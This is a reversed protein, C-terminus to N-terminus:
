PKTVTIRDVQTPDRDWHLRNGTCDQVVLNVVNEIPGSPNHNGPTWVCYRLELPGGGPQVQITQITKVLNRPLETADLTLMIAPEAGRAASAAVVGLVVVLAPVARRLAHIM